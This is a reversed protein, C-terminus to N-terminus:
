DKDRIKLSQLYWQYRRYIIVPTKSVASCNDGTDDDGAIFKDSNDVVSSFLSQRHCRCRHYIKRRYWSYWHVIIAPSSSVPSLMKQRHRQYWDSYGFLRCNDGTDCAASLVNSTIGAQRCRFIFILCFNLRCCYLASLYARLLIHFFNVGWFKGRKDGIDNVGSICM